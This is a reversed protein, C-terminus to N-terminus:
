FGLALLEGSHCLANIDCRRQCRDSHVAFKTQKVFTYILLTNILRHVVTGLLNKSLPHILTSITNYM